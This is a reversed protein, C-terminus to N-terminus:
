ATAPAAPRSPRWRPIGSRTTPRTAASSSVTAGSTPAPEPTRPAARPTARPRGWSRTRTMWRRTPRALAGGRRPSAACAAGDTHVVNNHCLACGTYKVGHTPHSGARDPCAVAPLSDPYTYAQAIQDGHCQSCAASGFNTRHRHCSLCNDGVNITIGASVTFHSRTGLDSPWGPSSLTALTAPHCNASVVDCSGNGDARYYDYPSADGAKSSRALTIAQGDIQSRLFYRNTGTNQGHPEHCALCGKLFAAGGVNMSGNHVMNDKSHCPVCYTTDDGMVKGGGVQLRFPNAPDNHNVMPEHCGGCVMNMTFGATDTAKGHGKAEFDVDSHCTTCINNPDIKLIFPLAESYHGNHCDLCAQFLLPTRVPTDNESLYHSRAPGLVGVQEGATPATNDHCYGCAGEDSATTVLRKTGLGSALHYPYDPTM